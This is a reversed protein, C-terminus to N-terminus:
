IVSIKNNLFNVSYFLDTGNLDLFYFKQLQSSEIKLKNLNNFEYPEYITLRSEKFNKVILMNSEYEAKFRDTAKIFIINVLKGDLKNVIRIALKKEYDDCVKFFLYDKSVASLICNSQIYFPWDMHMYQGFSRVIELRSNMVLYQCPRFCIIESENVLCLSLIEEFKRTKRLMLQLDMLRLSHKNQEFDTHCSVIIKSNSLYKSFTAHSFEFKSQYFITCNRDTIFLYDILNNKSKFQFFLLDLNIVLLSLLEKDALKLKSFDIERYLNLIKLYDLKKRLPFNNKYFFLGYLGTGNKLSSENLYFYVLKEIKKYENLKKLLDERSENLRKFVCDLDYSLIQKNLSDIKLENSSRNEWILSEITKFKAELELLLLKIESM